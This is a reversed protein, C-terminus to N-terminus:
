ETITIAREPCSAFAERVSKEHEAPVDETIASAHGDM